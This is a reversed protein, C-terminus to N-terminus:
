NQLSEKAISAKENLDGIPVKWDIPFEEDGRWRILKHVITNINTIFIHQIIPHIPGGHKYWLNAYREFSGLIHMKNRYLGQNIDIGLSSRTNSIQKCGDM